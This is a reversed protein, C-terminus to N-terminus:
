YSTAGQRPHPTPCVMLLDQSIPTCTTKMGALLRTIAVSSMRRLPTCVPLHQFHRDAVCDRTAVVSCEVTIIIVVTNGSGLGVNGSNVVKSRLPGYWAEAGM